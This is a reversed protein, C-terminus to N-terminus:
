AVEDKARIRHAGVWDAQQHWRWTNPSNKRRDTIAIFSVHGALSKSDIGTEAAWGNLFTFLHEFTGGEAALDCFCVGRSGSAIDEPSVEHDSFHTKLAPIAMPFRRRITEISEFRNSMNLLGIRPSWSTEAFTGSFYDFLSQPSRGLFVLRQNNSHAVV